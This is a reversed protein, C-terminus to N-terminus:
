DLEVVADAAAIGDETVMLPNIELTRLRPGLAAALAAFRLVTDILPAADIAYTM